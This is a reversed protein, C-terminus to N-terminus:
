FPIGYKTGSRGPFGNSRRYSYRENLRKLIDNVIDSPLADLVSAMDQYLKNSDTYEGVLNYPNHEKEESM